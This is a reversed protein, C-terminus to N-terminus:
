CTGTEVCTGVNGLATGISGSLTGWIAASALAFVVGVVAWEVMEMGDEERIFRGILSGSM